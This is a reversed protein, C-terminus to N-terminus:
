QLLASARIGSAAQLDTRLALEVNTAEIRGASAFAFLSLWEMVPVPSGWGFAYSETIELTLVTVVAGLLIRQVGISPGARVILILLALFIVAGAIGTETLVSLYTNHGTLRNPGTLLETTRYGTGFLPMHSWRTLLESYIQLRGSTIDSGQMARNFEGGLSPLRYSAVVLITAGLIVAVSVLAVTRRNARLVALSTLGFVLALLSGRSGSAVLAVGLALLAASGLLRGRAPVVAIVYIGIMIGIASMAGAYNANSFTGQFRGYDAIAWAQHTVFGILGVIQVVSILALAFALDGRVKLITTWRKWATLALFGFMLILVSSQALTQTRYLGTVVTALACVAYLTLCVLIGIDIRRMEVGPCFLLFAEAIVVPGFQAAYWVADPLVAGLASSRVISVTFSVALAFRWPKLWVGTWVLLVVVGMASTVLQVASILPLIESGISLHIGL